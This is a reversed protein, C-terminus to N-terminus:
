IEEVPRSRHISKGLEAYEHPTVGLFKEIRNLLSGPNQNIESYSLYLIQNGPFVAEWRRMNQSYASRVMIEHLERCSIDDLRVSKLQKRHALMRCHSLAREIPDRIILILKIRPNILKVHEVGESPLISYAPTVEGKVVTQHPPHRFITSYWALTGYDHVRMEAVLRPWEERKELFALNREFGKTIWGRNRPIHVYDFYHIEKIPPLFIEPNQSLMQYLWSTGAKQAGICLFDPRSM